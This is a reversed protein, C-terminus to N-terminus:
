PVRRFWAVSLAGGLLMLIGGAAAVLSTVEM